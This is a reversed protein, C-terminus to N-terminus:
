RILLPLQRANPRLYSANEKKVAAWPLLPYLGIPSLLVSQYQWTPNSRTPLLRSLQLNEMVKLIMALLISRSMMLAIPYTGMSKTPLIYTM